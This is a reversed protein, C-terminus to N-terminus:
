VSLTAQVPLHVSLVRLSTEKTSAVSNPERSSSSVWRCRLGSGASNPIATTLEPYCSYDGSPKRLLTPSRRLHGDGNSCVQSLSPHLSSPQKSRSSSQSGHLRDWSRVGVVMLEPFCATSKTSHTTAM